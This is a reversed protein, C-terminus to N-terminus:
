VDTKTETDKKNESQTETTLEPSYVDQCNLEMPTFSEKESPDHDISSRIDEFIQENDFSIM